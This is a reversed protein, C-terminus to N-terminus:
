GGRPAPTLLSMRVTEGYNRRDQTDWWQRSYPRFQQNDYPMSPYDGLQPDVQNGPVVTGKPLNGSSTAVQQLRASYTSLSRMPMRPAARFAPAMSKLARPQMAVLSSPRATLRASGASSAAHSDRSILPGRRDRRGRALDEVPPSQGQRELLM